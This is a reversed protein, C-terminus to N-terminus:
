PMYSVKAHKWSGEIRNTHVELLEGTDANRYVVKFAHKHEVTYHVYGEETLPNYSPWGDTFVTSGPVVHRKILAAIPM